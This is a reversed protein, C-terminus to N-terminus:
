LAMPTDGYQFYLSDCFEDSSLKTGTITSPMLTLWKGTECGRTITHSLETPIPAMLRTLTNKHNDYKQNKLESKVKRATARHHQL